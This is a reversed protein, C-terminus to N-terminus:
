GHANFAHSILVGIELILDNCKSIPEIFKKQIIKYNDNLNKPSQKVNSNKARPFAIKIQNIVNVLDMKLASSILIEPSLNDRASFSPIQSTLLLTHSMLSIRLSQLLDLSTREENEPHLNLENSVISNFDLADDRLMTVLRKVSESRNDNELAKSLKRFAHRM